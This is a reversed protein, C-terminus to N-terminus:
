GVNDVVDGFMWVTQMGATVVGAITELFNPSFDSLLSMVMHALIQCHTMWGPTRFSSGGLGGDLPRIHWGNGAYRYLMTTDRKVPIYV